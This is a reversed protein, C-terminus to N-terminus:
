TVCARQEGSAMFVQQLNFQSSLRFSFTGFNIVTDNTHDLEILHIIWRSVHRIFSTFPKKRIIIMFHFICKRKCQVISKCLEIQM